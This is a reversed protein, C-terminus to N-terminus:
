ITKNTPVNKLMYDIQPWYKLIKELPVLHMNNNIDYSGANHLINNLLVNAKRIEIKLSRVVQECLAISSNYFYIRSLDELTVWRDFVDNPKMSISNIMRDYLNIQQFYYFSHKYRPGIYHVNRRYNNQKPAIALEKPVDEMTRKTPKEKFFFFLSNLSDTEYQRINSPSAKHPWFEEFKTNEPFCKKLDDLPVVYYSDGTLLINNVGQIKCCFKLYSLNWGEMKVAYKQLYEMEGEFYFMPVCKKNDQVSYPLFSVKNMRLFGCYNSIDIESSKKLKSCCIRLFKCTPEADTINMLLDTYDFQKIGYQSDCHNFNITNLLKLEIETAHFYEINTCSLLEKKVFYPMKTFKGYELTRLACYIGDPRFIHPIGCSDIVTWGFRGKESESDKRESM